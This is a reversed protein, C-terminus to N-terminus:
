QAIQITSDTTTITLYQNPGTPIYPARVSVEMEIEYKEGAKVKGQQDVVVIVPDQVFWFDEVLESLESKSYRQENIRLGIKEPDVFEGNIAVKVAEICSYPLSRYWNLRIQVEYGSESVNLSNEEIMRFGTAM